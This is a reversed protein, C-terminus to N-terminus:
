VLEALEKLNAGAVIHREDAKEVVVVPFMRYGSIEFAKDVQDLVEHYEINKNKLWLKVMSCPPCNTKSYLTIKM